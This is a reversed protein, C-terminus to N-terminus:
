ETGLNTVSYDVINWIGDSRRLFFTYRKLETFNVNTFRMLVTVNGESGSHQTREIEFSTPVVSLTDADSPNQLERRMQEVMRQRGEESEALWRRRQAPNRSVMEELDIYLFFREWQSRQRATITQEVVEDPPIRERVLTAGTAEAMSAPLGDAAVALAPRISLNLRGSALTGDGVMNSPDGTGFSVTEAQVGTGAPNQRLEPHIFARVVFSGSGEILVHDRLNEVFSFSEGPEVSIERFFVQGSQTRRRVLEQSPELLRNAATRVEFDVSFARDDALKFRYTSPSNNSITLQVLVPDSPAHYVRRDFFRIGFDAGANQASAPLVAATGLLVAAFLKARFGRLM